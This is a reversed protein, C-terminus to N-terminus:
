AIKRWFESKEAKSFIGFGDTTIVKAAAVSLIKLRDYKGEVIIPRSINMM